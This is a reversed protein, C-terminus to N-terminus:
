RGARTGEYAHEKQRLHFVDPKIRPTRVATSPACYPGSVTRAMHEAETARRRLRRPVGRPAHRAAPRPVM